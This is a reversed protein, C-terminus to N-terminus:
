CLSTNFRKRAGDDTRKAGHSAYPRLKKKRNRYDTSQTRSPSLGEASKGYGRNALKNLTGSLGECSGYRGRSNLGM